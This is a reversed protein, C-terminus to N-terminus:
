RERDVIYQAIARLPDANNDFIDLARLADAILQLAYAKSPELGLLAPYTNKQRSEDTGVAKGLVDPDGQINLIDDKVQFALGIHNAYTKLGEIQVDSGRGLVAGAHVAAEILAGTKMRHMEELRRQGIRVGEYSLDRAQGEIMGLCGSAKSIIRVVEIWLQANSSPQEAGAISLTEFAMNLLADGTLIATAEDFQVHCTPKGRRLDDNDLAPLDDHILSYTHIMELACAAPLAMESAGGVASCAALCLIPRVRKGAASLAYTIPATMKSSDPLHSLHRNLASNVVQRQSALYPKLEFTAKAPEAM